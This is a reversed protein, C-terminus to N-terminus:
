TLIKLIYKYIYWLHCIIYGREGTYGWHVTNLM